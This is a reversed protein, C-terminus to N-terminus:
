NDVITSLRAHKAFAGVHFTVHTGPSGARKPGCPLIDQIM